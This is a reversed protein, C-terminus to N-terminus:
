LNTKEKSRQKDLTSSTSEQRSSAQRDHQTQQVLKKLKKRAEKLAERYKTCKISGAKHGDAKCLPCHSTNTCTKATHDEKGCKYCAKSRDLGTCKDATHDHCWCKHCRNIKVKRETRCEVLDIKIKNKTCLLDATKKTTVVTVTQTGSEAPRPESVNFIHRDEINLQRCLSEKVDNSTTTANLGKIYITETEGTEVLEKVQIGEDIETACKKLANLAETDKDMTVLLQGDKTSKICKIKDKHKNDKVSNKFNDVLTKYDKDNQKLIMAFTPRTRENKANLLRNTYIRAKTVSGHILSEVIKRLETAEVTSTDHLTIWDTEGAEKMTKQIKLFLDETSGNTHIKIIKKTKCETGISSRIRTTEELVQFEETSHALYPYRNLYLKPIGRDMKQEEPSIIVVGVVENKENLPNGNSIETNTFIRPEWKKNKIKIYDEYKEIKELHELTNKRVHLEETQTDVSFTMKEEEIYKHNEMWEKVNQMKLVEVQKKLKRHLEKIEKKTNQVNVHLEMDNTIKIITAMAESLIFATPCEKKKISEQSNQEFSTDLVKRKKMANMSNCRKFDGVFNLRSHKWVTAAGSHRSESTEDDWTLDLVGVNISERRKEKMATVPHGDVTAQEGVLRDVSVTPDSVWQKTVNKEKENNMDMIKKKRKWTRAAKTM